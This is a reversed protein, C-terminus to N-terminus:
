KSPRRSRPQAARVAPAGTLALLAEAIKAPSLVIDAGGLDIAAAPMEFHDASTDQTMTLGGASAIAAIGQAGDWMAGSLIIGIARAGFAEAASTLLRDVAPRWWRMPASSDLTIRGCSRITLHLNRPAVYVMGGRMTEGDEAWKVRLSTKFGLVEPLRSPLTKSLHASLLIPLKFNAPLEGLLQHLARIGGASCGIAVVRYAAPEGPAGTLSAALTSRHALAM